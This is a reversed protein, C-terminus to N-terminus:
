TLKSGEQSWGLMRTGHEGALRETRRGFSLGTTKRRRTPQKENGRQMFYLFGCEFETWRVPEGQSGFLETTSTPKRFVLIQTGPRKTQNGIKRVMQQKGGSPGTATGVLLGM